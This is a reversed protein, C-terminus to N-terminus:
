AGHGVQHIQNTNHPPLSPPLSPNSYSSDPTDNLMYYNTNYLFFLIYKTFVNNSEKGHESKQPQLQGSQIALLRTCFFFFYKVVKKVSIFTYPDNAFRVANTSRWILLSNYQIM